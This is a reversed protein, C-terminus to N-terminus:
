NETPVKSIQDIVLVDVPMRRKELKLGLQDQVADVLGAGARLQTPSPSPPPPPSWKLDIHYYDKLGTLDLVLLDAEASLQSVLVSMPISNAFYRGDTMFISSREPGVPLKSLPVPLDPAVRTIKAGGNAQVLVFVMMERKEIHYKMSLRETLATRLMLWATEQRTGPPTKAEVAYTEDAIWKPGEIQYKKLSFATEIIGELPFDCTVRDNIFQPGRLPSIAYEGPSRNILVPSKHSPKISAVEFSVAAEQSLVVTVAFPGILMAALRVIFFSM